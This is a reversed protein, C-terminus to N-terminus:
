GETTNPVKPVPQGPKESERAVLEKITAILAPRKEEPVGSLDIQFLRGSEIAIRVHSLRAGVSVPTGDEAAAAKRFLEEPSIPNSM